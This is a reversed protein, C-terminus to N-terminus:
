VLTIQNINLVFTISFFFIKLIGRAFQPLFQVIESKRVEKGKNFSNFSKILYYFFTENRHRKVHSENKNISTSIVPWLMWINWGNLTDESEEDNRVKRKGSKHVRSHNGFTFNKNHLYDFVSMSILIIKLAAQHLGRLRIELAATCFRQFLRFLLASSITRSM